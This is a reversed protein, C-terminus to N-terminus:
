IKTEPCGPAKVDATLAFAREGPEAVDAVGDVPEPVFYMAQAYEACGALFHATIWCLLAFLIDSAAMFAKSAFRVFARWASRSLTTPSSRQSADQQPTRLLVVHEADIRRYRAYQTRRGAVRLASPSRLYRSQESFSMLPEWPNSAQSVKDGRHKAIM